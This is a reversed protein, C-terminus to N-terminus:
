GLQTDIGADYFNNGNSNAIGTDAGNNFCRNGMVMNRYGAVIVCGMSANGTIQNNQLLMHSNAVIVGTNLNDAISSNVLQCGSDTDDFEYLQIEDVYIRIPSPDLVTVVSELSFKFGTAGVPISIIGGVIHWESLTQMPIKHRDSATGNAGAWAGGNYYQFIFSPNYLPADSAPIYAKLYFAYSKGATLGHLDDTNANDTFYVLYTGPDPCEMKYSYSGSYSVTSSRVWIPSGSTLPVTEGALMPEDTSECDGYSMKDIAQSPYIEYGNGCGTITVAVAIAIISAVVKLGTGDCNTIKLGDGLTVRRSNQIYIGDDDGDDATVGRISSDDVYDFYVLPQANSDSANRTIKGGGSIMCYQVHSATSGVAKIAYDNCNKELTSGCDLELYVNSKMEIAASLSYTGETIRVKGGGYTQSLWDIASQIQTNCSAAGCLFTVPQTCYQDGITVVNTYPAATPDGPAVFRTYENSDWKWNELVERFELTTNGITGIGRQQTVSFCEAKSDVYEAIGGPGGVRATYWEGPEYYSLMGPETTRYIHRPVRNRKWLNDAVKDTQVRSTIMDSELEVSQEGDKEIREYDVFADHVFGKGSATKRILKGRIACTSVTQNNGTSNYLLINAADPRTTTDFTVLTMPQVATGCSLTRLVLTADKVGLIEEGQVNTTAAGARARNAAPADQSNIKGGTGLKRTTTTLNSYEAWYDGFAVKDPFYSGATCAVNLLQGNMDFSGTAAANWITRDTTDKMIMCGKVVVKNACETNMISNINQTNLGVTFLASPDAYGTKLPTRYKLTNCSTMGLYMAVTADALEQMYGWITNGAKAVMYPQVFDADDADIGVTHYVASQASSSQTVGAAGVMTTNIVWPLRENNQVLQLNDIQCSSSGTKSLRIRLIDAASTTVTYTAEMITWAGAVLNKSDVTSGV